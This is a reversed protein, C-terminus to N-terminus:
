VRLVEEGGIEHAVSDTLAFALDLNALRPFGSAEVARGPREAVICPIGGVRWLGHRALDAHVSWQDGSRILLRQEVRRVEYGEVILHLSKAEVEVAPPVGVDAARQAIRMRRETIGEHEQQVAVNVPQEGHPLAHRAM